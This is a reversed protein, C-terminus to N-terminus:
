QETNHHVQIHIVPSDDIFHALLNIIMNIVDCWM